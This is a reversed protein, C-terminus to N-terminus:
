ASRNRQILNLAAQYRQNLLLAKEQNEQNHNYLLINAAAYWRLAFLIETKKNPYEPIQSGVRMFEPPYALLAKFQVVRPLYANGLGTYLKDDLIVGSLAGESDDCKVIVYKPNPNVLRPFPRYVEGDKIVAELDSGEATRLAARVADIDCTQPSHPTIGDFESIEKIPTDYDTFKIIRLADKPLKFEDAGEQLTVVGERAFLTDDVTLMNLLGDNLERVIDEDSYRQRGGATERADGVIVRVATILDDVSQYM